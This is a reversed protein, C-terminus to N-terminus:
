YRRSRGAAGRPLLGHEYAAAVLATRNPADFRAMLRGLHYSVAQRSYHLAKATEVTSFGRAVMALIRLELGDVERLEPRRPAPAPPHARGGLIAWMVDHIAVVVRSCIETVFRRPVGGGRHILRGAGRAAVRRSVDALEGRPVGAEVLGDSTIEIRRLVGPPIPRGRLVFERLPPLVESVVAGVETGWRERDNTRLYRALLDRIEVTFETKPSLGELVAVRGDPLVVTM